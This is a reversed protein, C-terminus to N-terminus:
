HRTSSQIAGYQALRFTGFYTQNLLKFILRNILRKVSSRYLELDTMLQTNPASANVGKFCKCVIYLLSGEGAIRLLNKTTTEVLNFYL